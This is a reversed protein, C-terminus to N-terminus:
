LITVKVIRRIVKPEGKPVLVTEAVVKRPGAPFQTRYTKHGCHGVQLFQNFCEMKLPGVISELILIVQDLEKYLRALLLPACPVSKTWFSSMTEEHFYGEKILNEQGLM